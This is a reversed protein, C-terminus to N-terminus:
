HKDQAQALLRENAERLAEETRKRETIDQIAGLLRIVRGAEMVATGQSRVWIARGKATQLPLELDWPTGHDLGAQFAAQVAARAQPAYFQM